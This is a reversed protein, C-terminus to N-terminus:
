GIEKGEAATKPRSLGCHLLSIVADQEIPSVVRRMRKHEIGSGTYLKMFYDLDRAFSVSAHKNFTGVGPYYTKMFADNFFANIISSREWEEYSSLSMLGNRKYRTHDLVVTYSNLM